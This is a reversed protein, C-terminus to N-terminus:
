NMIITVTDEKTRLIASEIAVIEEKEGSLLIDGRILETFLPTHSPLIGVIGRPTPVLMHNVEGQFVIADPNVIIVKLPM